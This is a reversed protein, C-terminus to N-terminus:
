DATVVKRRFSPVGEYDFEDGFLEDIRAKIVVYDERAKGRAHCQGNHEIQEALHILSNRDFLSIYKPNVVQFQTDAQDFSYSASYYATM